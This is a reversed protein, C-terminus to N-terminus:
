GKDGTSGSPHNKNRQLRELEDLDDSAHATANGSDGKAIDEDIQEYRKRNLTLPDGRREAVRKVWWVLLPILAGVIGLIALTM